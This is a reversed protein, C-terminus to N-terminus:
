NSPLLLYYLNFELKIVLYPGSDVRIIGVEAMDRITLGEYTNKIVTLCKKVM